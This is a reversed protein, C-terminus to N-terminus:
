VSLHSAPSIFPHKCVLFGFTELHKKPIFEGGPCLPSKLKTLILLSYHFYIGTINLSPLVEVCWCYWGGVATSFLLHFFRNESESGWLFKQREWSFLFSGKKQKKCILHLPPNTGFSLRAGTDKGVSSGLLWTDGRQGQRTRLSNM